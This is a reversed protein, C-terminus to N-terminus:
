VCLGGGLIHSGPGGAAPAVAAAYSRRPWNFLNPYGRRSENRLDRVEASSFDRGSIVCSSIQGAFQHANGYQRGLTVPVNNPTLTKGGESATQVGDQYLRVTGAAFTVAVHTWVDKIIANGSVAGGASPLFSLVDGAQDHIRLQWSFDSAERKAAITEYNGEAPSDTWRIYAAMTLASSLDFSSENAIQVVDNIGDFELSGFGGPPPPSQSSWTPGNILTGHHRGDTLDHWTLGRPGAGAVWFGKMSKALPHQKNLLQSFSRRPVTLGM